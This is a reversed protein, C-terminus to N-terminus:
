EMLHLTIERKTPSHGDKNNDDYSFVMKYYGNPWTKYYPDFIAAGFIYTNERSEHVKVGYSNYINLNIYRFWEPNGGNIHMTVHFFKNTRKHITATDNKIIVPAIPEDIGTDSVISVCLSTTPEAHVTCAFSLTCIMVMAFMVSIKNKCIWKILVM